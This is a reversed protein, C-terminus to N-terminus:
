KGGIVAQIVNNSSNTLGLYESVVKASLGLNSAIQAVSHGAHKLLRAQAAVSLKVTDTAAPSQNKGTETAESRPAAVTNTGAVKDTYASTGVSQITM